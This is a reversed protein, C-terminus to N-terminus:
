LGVNSGLDEDNRMQIVTIAELSYMKGSWRFQLQEGGPM